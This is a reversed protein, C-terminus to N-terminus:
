VFCVVYSNHRNGPFCTNLSELRLYIHKHITISRGFCIIAGCAVLWASDAKGKGVRQAIHYMRVIARETRGANGALKPDAPYTNVDSIVVPWLESGLLENRIRESVRAPHVLSAVTHLPILVALKHEKTPKIILHLNSPVANLETLDLCLQLLLFSHITRQYHYMILIEHRKHRRAHIIRGLIIGQNLVEHSCQLTIAAAKWAIHNRRM